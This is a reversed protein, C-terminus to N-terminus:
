HLQTFHPVVIRIPKAPYTEQAQAGGMACAASLAILALTNRRTFAM